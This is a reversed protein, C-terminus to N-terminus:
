KSFKGKMNTKRSRVFEIVLLVVGVILLVIAAIGAWEWSIADKPEKEAPQSVDPTTTAGTSPVTSPETGIPETKTVQKACVSCTYLFGGEPLEEGADWTHPELSQIEPCRLDSCSHWHNEDDGYWTEGFDHVHSLEMKIIFNCEACTQPTDETAEPGPIHPLTDSQTNCITCVSWHGSLGAQWEGNYNHPAERVVAGCTNCSVDCVDDYDHPALGGKEYCDPSAPTECRHWHSEADYNWETGFSHVHELKPAIEYKCVTCTQAENVTAKPGPTHKAEDKKEDCNRCKHWHGNADSTWLTSYDHETERTYGCDERNCTKDCANDWSHDLAKIKETKTAGCGDICTYTEEGENTCSPPSTLEGDDWTHQQKDQTQCKSCIKEHYEGDVKTWTTPYDHNCILAIQVAEGAISVDSDVNKCSLDGFKITTNGPKAAKVTLTLKIMEGSYVGASNWVATLKGSAPDFNKTNADIIGICWSSSKFEFINTDYELFVGLATIPTTGATSITITIEDGTQVTTASAAATLTVDAAMAPVALMALLMVSVLLVIIKKM